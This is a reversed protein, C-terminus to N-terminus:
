KLSVSCLAPKTGDIVDKFTLLEHDFEQDSVSAEILPNNEYLMKRAASPHDGSGVSVIKVDGVDIQNLNLEESLQQDSLKQERVMSHYCCTFLNGDSDTAEYLYAYFQNPLSTHM